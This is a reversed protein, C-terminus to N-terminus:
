NSFQSPSDFDESMFEAIARNRRVHPENAYAAELVVLDDQIHAFMAFCNADEERAFQIANSPLKTWVTVAGAPGDTVAVMLQPEDEKALIYFSSSDSM